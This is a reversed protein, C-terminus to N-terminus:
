AKADLFLRLLCYRVHLTRVDQRSSDLKVISSLSPCWTVCLIPVLRRWGVKAVGLPMMLMLRLVVGLVAVELAAMLAGSHITILIAHLPTHRWRRREIVVPIRHRPISHRWGLISWWTLWSVCSAPRSGSHKSLARTRAVKRWVPGRRRIVILVIPAHAHLRRVELRLVAEILTLVHVVVRLTLWSRSHRRVRLWRIILCVVRSRKWIGMGTYWLLLWDILRTSELRRFRHLVKLLKISLQLLVVSIRVLLLLIPFICLCLDNRWVRLLVVLLIAWFWEVLTVLHIFWSKLICARM